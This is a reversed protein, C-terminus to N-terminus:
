LTLNVYHHFTCVLYIELAFSNYRFKSLLMGTAHYSSLSTIELVLTMWGAYVSIFGAKLQTDKLVTQSAM